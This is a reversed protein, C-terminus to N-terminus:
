EEKGDWIVDVVIEKLREVVDSSIGSCKALRLVQIEANREYREMCCDLVLDMSTTQMYNSRPSFCVGELLIYRLKPFSVNRYATNSEEAAKMKYLLAKLFSHTLEGEVCVQELLPLKGFTNVWTQSDIYNETSVHLRTLDPLKMSDFASTLVEVCSYLDPSPWTLTLHLQPQVPIISSPIFWNQIIETTWFCLDLGEPEEEFDGLGDLSLTRIVLSSLFKTVLVSFFNSFHVQTSQSEECTLNLIATHPFTIHRLVTTLADVGSSIHLVGLCPLDVVLYISTGELDDPISDILRLYTLAPMRQLAHLFQIISCNAKLSHQLTLRTLGTLLQSDWSIKCNILEVRQLRETDYFLDEHLSLRMGTSRICLTHLQPASRPLLDSFIDEWMCGPFTFTIEEVRNMEYLCLRFAKTHKRFIRYPSCFRITLNAMKSRTLMEQVWQSYGLHIKTWLEPASLASSRWHQSVRSFNTWSM